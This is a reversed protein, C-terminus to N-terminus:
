HNGIKDNYQWHIQKNIFICHLMIFSFFMIFPTPNEGGSTLELIVWVGIVDCHLALM